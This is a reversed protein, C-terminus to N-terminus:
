IKANIEAELKEQLAPEAKIALVAKDRGQFRDGYIDFWAGSQIVIGLEIASSLLEGSKDVGLDVGRYYFDFEGIEGPPSTRSKEVTWTVPRGVNKKIIRDGSYVEGKIQNKDAPNSWFKIITSMYHQFAIGGMPQPVAGYIQINNRMQSIFIQMCDNSAYNLMALMQGLDRSAAGIQKTDEVRKLEKSDKEFFVSGLLVSTSDVVFLDVGLEIFQLCDETADSITKAKSILLSTTDVGMKEAWEADFAGEADVWACLKGEAQAKAILQLCFSSKGGAKNGWILAQRGWPLGGALAKNLGISPTGLKTVTVQSAAQVRKRTKPDLRGIVKDFAENNDTM